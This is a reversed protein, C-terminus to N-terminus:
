HLVRLLREVVLAVGDDDSSATVEDAIAKTAAGANGMAVGHGAWALLEHDNLGDGFAVVDRQEIGLRGCLHATTSGKNVGPATLEVSGELGSPSVQVDPPLVPVLQELLTAPDAGLVFLVASHVADDWAPSADDVVAADAKSLPAILHYGPEVRVGSPTSIALRLGDVAARASAVASAVVRGPLSAQYLVAGSAVDGVTAGNAAVVYEGIGLEAVVPWAYQIPRGTVVVVHWGARDAAHLSDRTRATLEGASTLLTGDVDLALLSRGQASAVGTGLDLDIEHVYSPRRSLLAGAM